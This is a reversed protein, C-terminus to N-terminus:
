KVVTMKKAIRGKGASLAYYYTGATMDETSLVVSYKGAARNGENISKVLKGTVDFISISVNNNGNQLEYTITTNNVAPNPSNQGLRAGNLFGEEIGVNHDVLAWIFFDIDLPWAELMTHWANNSWQEWALETGAADGPPGGAPQSSSVIGVTDGAALQTFDVGIAFDATETKPTSFMIMNVGAAFSTGTDIATFLVDTSRNVTNPASTSPGATTTGAGNLSYERVRIKSTASGAADRQKAGFWILAGEVNVTGITNIFVQAKQKDQYFNNGVVYGGGQCNYQVLGYTTTEFSPGVLTDTVTREASFAPMGVTSVPTATSVQKQAAASLTVAVAAIMTYIKKM